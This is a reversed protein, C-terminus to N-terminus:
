VQWGKRPESFPGSSLRGGAEQCAGGAEVGSFGVVWLMKCQCVSVCVNDHTCFFSEEFRKVADRVGRVAQYCSGISRVGGSFLGKERFIDVVEYRM